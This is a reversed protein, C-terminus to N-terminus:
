EKKDQLGTESPNKKKKKQTDKVGGGAILGNAPARRFGKATCGGIALQGQGKGGWSEGVKV